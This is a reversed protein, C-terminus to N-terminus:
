LNLPFFLATPSRCPHPLSSQSITYQKSILWWLLSAELPHTGLECAQRIPPSTVFLIRQRLLAARHLPFILPGFFDIYHLISLAPHFGPLSQRDDGSLTASSLARSKRQALTFPSLQPSSFDEEERVARHENWYEQLVEIKSTDDVIAKALGQLNGAHLWARGLRGDKLKLLAGV